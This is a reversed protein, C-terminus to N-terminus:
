SIVSEAQSEATLGNRILLANVDPDRGMFSRYLDTPDESDGNALIRDRFEVGAKESFLGETQFRTFADADLVEAWKYSYYGSGYAVPSAFLHTFSAIMAWDDPLESASYRQMLARCFDIVDGDIDPSYRRHLALDTAGFGLQRMQAAASRYNRARKMKQLLDDPISAGTEYHRAFFDLSEREWCWNEFIQSPLEVFDWAVNTCSLARVSVRSLCHHLLHGFEHFITEVESHTLLAPKDGLPPTLNGCILGLHPRGADPNGQIFSDMWAGGRKNERPFWDAYFGGLHLGSARDEIRYFKVAPDWGPMGHEETVQIGFLRSFIAFMGAMVQEVPFYPRLEEEDFDYLALRLKEAYYGLDWAPLDRDGAYKRLAQIEDAFFPETRELLDDVFQQARAGRRAMRDALIFDPFDAFGLLQGKERRLRLIERILAGNEYPAAAARKNYARYLTERIGADDLYTMLPVYSPAQLTFRWGEKGKARASERAADVASPPLGAIHAEDTLILEFENTSDLVNESFKTTIRTLKVDIERLKQKGAADLDAGNRIFSDITKRLYRRRAGTLAHAEATHSFGKVTRWLGEHLPLNSYFEAVPGQVANNAERLEPTTAVTELHRVIGMAYELKESFTDLRDLTSGYSSDSAPTAAINELEASCQALLTEIAPKVHEARIQDFPIRYQQSLLPNQM